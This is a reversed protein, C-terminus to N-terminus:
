RWLPAAPVNHSSEKVPTRPTAKGISLIYVMICGVAVWELWYAKGFVLMLTPMVATCIGLYLNAKKFNPHYRLAAVSFGFGMGFMMFHVRSWFSHVQYVNIPNLASMILAFASLLGTIQAIALLRKHTSNGDLRWQALGAAFWVALFLASLIAGINYFIAGEPNVIQDGLDSLWKQFPSFPLPYKIYALIAFIIYTAASLIASGYCIPFRFKM